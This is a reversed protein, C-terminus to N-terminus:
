ALSEDDSTVYILKCRDGLEDFGCEAFGNQSALIFDGPPLGIIEFRFILSLNVGMVIGAVLPVENGDFISLYWRQSREQWYVQLVYESNELTVRQKFSPEPPSSIPIELIAM